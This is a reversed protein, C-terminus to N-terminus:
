SLDRLIGRLAIEFDKDKSKDRKKPKSTYIGQSRLEKNIHRSSLMGDINSDDIIIGNQNISIAGRGLCMAALGNDQTVVMDGKSLHNVIYFDASDSTTDVTVVEAYEDHIVHAYNKVLTIPVKFEKALDVAIKVVPCGDADVFIRKM